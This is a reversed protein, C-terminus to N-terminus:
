AANPQKPTAISRAIIPAWFRRTGRDFFRHCAIPLKGGNLRLAVDPKRDICFDVAERYDPIRMRTLKPAVISFYLDEIHHGSHDAMDQLRVINERQTTVIRRMTSVNRLSFGGNGVKFWHATNKRRKRFADNIRRLFRTAATQPSAIWPAGVYDYGKDLWADLRDEFVFADTQCILLYEADAFTDYFTPSLMLRNYGEIGDFWHTDFRRVDHDVRALSEALPALDLGTPCAISFRRHSLTHLAREFALRENHCLLTKYLPIVVIAPKMLAYALVPFAPAWAGAPRTKRIRRCTSQYTKKHAYLAICLSDRNRLSPATQYQRAQAQEGLAGCLLMM